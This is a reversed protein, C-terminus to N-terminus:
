CMVTYGGRKSGELFFGKIIMVKAQNPTLNVRAYSDSSTEHGSNGGLMKLANNPSKYVHAFNHNPMTGKGLQLADGENIKWGISTEYGDKIKEQMEKKTQGFAIISM